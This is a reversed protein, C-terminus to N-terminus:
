AAQAASVVRDPPLTVTVSTGSGERSEISLTGGHAEAFRKAIPLGLGTGRNETTRIDHRGQGFSEVVREIDQAKIGIGTDSVVIEVSGTENSRLTLRVAGGPLTFKVANSLLNIIIQHIARRDAFVELRPPAQCTLNL